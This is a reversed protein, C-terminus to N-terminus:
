SEAEEETERRRPTERLRDLNDRMRRLLDSVIRVEEESFGALCRRLNANEDTILVDYIATAKDSPTLLRARGDGADTEVAVYGLAELKRVAKATTTKDVRVLSSLRNQNVGPHECIRTLFVFQGKQLGMSRYRVDSLSQITRAIAGIDRLVTEELRIM